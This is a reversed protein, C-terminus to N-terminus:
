EWPSWDIHEGGPNTIRCRWGDPTPVAIASSPCQAQHAAVEHVGAMAFLRRDNEITHDILKVMAVGFVAIGLLGAVTLFFVARM